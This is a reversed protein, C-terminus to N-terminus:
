IPVMRTYRPMVKWDTCIFHGDGVIRALISDDNFYSVKGTVCMMISDKTGSVNMMNQVTTSDRVTVYLSLVCAAALFSLSARAIVGSLTLQGSETRAIPPAPIRDIEDMPKTAPWREPEAKKTWANEKKQPPAYARGFPKTQKM